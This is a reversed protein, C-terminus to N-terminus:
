SVVGNEPYVRSVSVRADTFMQENRQPVVVSASSKNLPSLQM